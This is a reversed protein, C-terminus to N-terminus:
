LFISNLATRCRPDSWIGVVATQGAQGIREGFADFFAQIPMEDPDVARPIIVFEVTAVFVRPGHAGELAVIAQVFEAEHELSGGAVM